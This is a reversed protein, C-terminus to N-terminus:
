DDISVDDVFEIKITDVEAQRDLSAVKEALDHWVDDKSHGCADVIEREGRDNTLEFRFVIMAKM